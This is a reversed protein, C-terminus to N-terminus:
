GLSEIMMKFAIMGPDDHGVSKEGFIRARGQHSRRGRFEDLAATAAQDAAARLEAPTDLGETAARVADIADLLTKDGLQAKGRKSMAEVAGGLLSSTEAWPVETRGRTAKAASMLGTALLTGFTSGSVKVLAQACKMLAMGVDDPLEPLEERLTRLGRVMTVGLDGDGLSADLTNLEDAQAELGDAIAIMGNRLVKTTLGAAM